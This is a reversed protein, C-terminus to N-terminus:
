DSRLDAWWEDVWETFAEAKPSEDKVQASSDKLEEGEDEHFPAVSASEPSGFAAASQAM